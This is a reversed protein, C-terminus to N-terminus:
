SGYYYWPGLSYGLLTLTTEAQHFLGAEFSGDEHDKFAELTGIVDEYVDNIAKKRLQTKLSSM